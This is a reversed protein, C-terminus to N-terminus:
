TLAACIVVTNDEGGNENAMEVLKKAAEGNNKEKELLQAIEDNSVQNLGDSCLVLREKGRDSGRDSPVSFVDTRMTEPRCGVYSYLLHPEFGIKHDKTIQRLKGDRMLYARTGGAHALYLRGEYTLAM